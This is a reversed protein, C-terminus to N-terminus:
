LQVHWFGRELDVVWGGSLFPVSDAHLDKVVQVAQIEQPPDSIPFVVLGKPSLKTMASFGKLCMCTLADGLTNNIYSSERM